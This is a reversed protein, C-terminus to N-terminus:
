KKQRSITILGSIAILFVGAIAVSSPFTSYLAFGLVASFVIQIYSFPALFSPSESQYACALLWHAFTGALGMPLIWLLDGIAPTVWFIPLALCAILCAFIGLWITSTGPSDFRSAARTLLQYISLFFAAFCPFLAAPAFLDGGPRVILLVGILGSVVACWQSPVVSEHLVLRSIVLVFLPSLFNLATAEALPVYKLGVIFCISLAVLCQARLFHLGLHRSKFAASGSQAWSWASMLVAQLFYRVCILMVVPLTTILHKAMADHLALFFAAGCVMFAAARRAEASRSALLLGTTM